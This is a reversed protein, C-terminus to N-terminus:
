EDSVRNIIITTKTWLCVNRNQFAANKSATCQSLFLLDGVVLHSYRYIKKKKLLDPIFLYFNKSPKIFLFNDSLYKKVCRM